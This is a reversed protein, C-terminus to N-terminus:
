KFEKTGYVKLKKGEHVLLYFQNDVEIEIEQGPSMLKGLAKAFLRVCKVADEITDDDDPHLYRPFQFNHFSSLIKPAAEHAESLKYNEAKLRVIEESLQDNRKCEEKYAISLMEYHTEPDLIM